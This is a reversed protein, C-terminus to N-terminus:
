ILKNRIKDQLDRLGRLYELEADVMLKGNKLSRPREHDLGVIPCEKADIQSFTIKNM